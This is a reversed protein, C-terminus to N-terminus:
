ILVEVNNIPLSRRGGGHLHNPGNNVALQYDVGGLTFRGDAIRNAVRGTTCGFYQNAPSEYGRVEDFGLVVDALKGKRDPVHMSMLTAGREMVRARLGNRNILEYSAVRRGQADLGAPQSQVVEVSSCASLSVFLVATARFSRM